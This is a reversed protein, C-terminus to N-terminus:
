ADTDGKLARTIAERGASTLVYPHDAYPRPGEQRVALGREAFDAVAATVNRGMGGGWGGSTIRQGNLLYWRTAWGCKLHYRDAVEGRGIAALLEAQSATLVDAM